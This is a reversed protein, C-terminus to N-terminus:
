HEVTNYHGSYDRECFTFLKNAKTMDTRM